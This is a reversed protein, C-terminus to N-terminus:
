AGEYGADQMVLAEYWQARRADLTKAYADIRQRLRAPVDAHALLNQCLVIAHHFNGAQAWCSAASFGHLFAKERLGQTFCADRLQEEIAAAEAIRDAAAGFQHQTRLLQAELILQSKRAEDVEFAADVGQRNIGRTCPHHM